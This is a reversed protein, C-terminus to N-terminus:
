GETILEEKM